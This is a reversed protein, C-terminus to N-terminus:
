NETLLMGILFQLKTTESVVAHNTTTTQLSRSMMTSNHVNMVVNEKKRKKKREKEKEREIV